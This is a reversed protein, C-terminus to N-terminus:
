RAIGAEFFAGHQALLESVSLIGARARLATPMPSTELVHDLSALRAITLTVDGQAMASLSADLETREDVGYAFHRLRIIERGASVAALLQARQLPTAQDPLAALRGYMRSDWGEPSRPNPGRTLRRLDRLTLALLTADSIRPSLPPILRFSLTAAGLGAVIALASNNVGPFTSV